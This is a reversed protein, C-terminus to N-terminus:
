GKTLTLSNRDTHHLPKDLVSMSLVTTSEYSWGNPSLSIKIEYSDSRANAELYPNSLIGNTTSGREARLLYETDSKLVSASAILVSGRPVMFCRTLFEAEPDYLWYGGETHFPDDDLESIRWAAMRYDLGYLHQQGNDVPGFPKLQVKEFYPTTGTVKEEHHFSFDVGHSGEWDGALRALPGFLDQTVEHLEM